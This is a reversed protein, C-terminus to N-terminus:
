ERGFVLMAADRGHESTGKKWGTIERFYEPRLKTMSRKTPQVEVVNLGIRRAYEAILKATAKNEGVNQAIKLFAARSQGPRPFVPPNKQPAEIVVTRIRMADEDLREIIGWFDTTEIAEFRQTDTNWVAYGKPPDIGILINRNM